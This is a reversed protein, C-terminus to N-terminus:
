AGALLAEVRGGQGLAGALRAVHPIDWTMTAFAGHPEAIAAWHPYVIGTQSCVWARDPQADAVQELYRHALTRDGAMDELKAKLRCLRASPTIGEAVGLYQRAQGWLGGSIAVEALAIQSEADDPRLATLKEVWAMRVAIDDKKRKPAIENWLAALEPHPAFKWTRQITAMAGRRQGQNIEFRALHVAAPVFAPDFKHAQRFKDGAKKLMGARLENQGELILMTVREKGARFTDIAGAKEARYLTNRAASWDRTKIELDYVAKLLATQKPHMALAQRALHLARGTDGSDLAATLLGRVGLIATDKNDMLQRFADQAKSEDGQLRAAQADLLLPLGKDNPLFKLARHAHYTAMKKDGAAAAALGLTLAKYGKDRQRFARYRKWSKPFMVIELFVRHFFLVFVTLAFLLLLFIGIHAEIDYGLWHITVNGPRGAVWIAAAVFLGVKVAFWFM